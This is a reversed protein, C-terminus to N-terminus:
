AKSLVTRYVAFPRWRGIAALAWHPKRFPLRMCEPLGKNSQGFGYLSICRRDKTGIPHPNFHRLSRLPSVPPTLYGEMRLTHISLIFRLNDFGLRFKDGEMCLTLISIPKM